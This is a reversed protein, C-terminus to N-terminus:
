GGESERRITELAERFVRDVGLSKLCQNDHCDWYNRGDYCPRCALHEGGWLVKTKGSSPIKEGPNTPGFLAITPTGSAVALHLPGSDHTVVLRCRGFLAMLDTLSTQGVLDTVALKEFPVRVWDDQHSGTLLVQYGEKLFKGALLAYNEVPWRRLADDRLINRAGGPALAVVKGNKELKEELAPRLSPRLLPIAAVPASPGDLGTVLRVYEDGQYRGPLPM